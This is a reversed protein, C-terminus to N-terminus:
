PNRNEIEPLRNGPEPKRTRVPCQNPGPVPEPRPGSEFRSVLEFRRNPGPFPEFPPEFLSDTRVSPEFSFGTRVPRNSGPPEFRNEPEFRAGSESRHWRNSGIGGSWGPAM